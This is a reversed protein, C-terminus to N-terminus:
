VCMFIIKSSLIKLFSAASNLPNIRVAFPLYRKGAALRTRTYVYVYRYNHPVHAHPIAM